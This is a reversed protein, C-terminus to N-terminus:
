TIRSFLPTRSFPPAGCQRVADQDDPVEEAMREPAEERRERDRQRDEEDAGDQRQRAREGAIRSLAVDFVRMETWWSAPSVYRSGADYTFLTRLTGPTTATFWKVQNPPM